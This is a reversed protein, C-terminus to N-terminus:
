EIISGKADKESFATDTYGLKGKSILHVPLEITFTSGLGIGQSHALLSGNLAAIFSKGVYLGLGTGNAHLRGVDRGRSFKQFLYPMDNPDIGIGTDKVSIRVRDGQREGCIEITGSDSYKVANDILNTLVERVKSEDTMIVPLGGEAISVSLRLGKEEARIAFMDAVDRIMSGVICPEVRFQIKGSEIRSVNLLDEVLYILRENSLYVKNLAGGVEESFSGYSGELILSIFGKVSTLPTRLQHSAISVFDSKAQDLERLRRNTRALRGTLRRLEEKQRIEAKVSRILMLGFISVIGLTIGTLTRNLSTRIFFFQAAVLILIASVLVQVGLTRINLANFKVIAYALFAIFVPLGFLGYQGISWDDTISGSINGWSFLILFLIMGVTISVIKLRESKKDKFTQYFGKFGILFIFLIEVLYIYYWLDGEKAERDCNSFDFFELNHKTALFLFVPFVLLLSFFKLKWPISKKNTTLSFIFFYGSIYILLELYTMISWFFMIFQSKETAWLVLDFFSWLCFLGMLFVFIINPLEKRNKLFVFFGVFLAVAIPGLHSYYILPDFVNDSFILFKASDWNCMLSPNM